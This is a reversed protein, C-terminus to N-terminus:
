SVSEGKGPFRVNEVNLYGGFLFIITSVYTWMLFAMITAVSGYVVNSRSLFTSIVLLFGQKALEWLLGAAIAGPLIQHWAVNARPLFYYLVAFLSVSLFAAALRSTYVELQGPIVWDFVTLVTQGVFSAILLLGSLVLAMLIGFGRHQWLSRAGVQWVQDMARSLMNFINSASWLFVFLAFGTVPGRAEVIRELNEGLLQSLAPVVFELQGVIESEAFLPDFWFSAIGVTLLTLPFLSFLTFYGISGALLSSEPSLAQQTARILVYVWRRKQVNSWVM